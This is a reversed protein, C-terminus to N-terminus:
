SFKTHVQVVKGPFLDLELIFNNLGENSCRSKALITIERIGYKRITCLPTAKQDM